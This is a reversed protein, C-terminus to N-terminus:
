CLFRTLRSTVSDNLWVKCSNKRLVTWRHLYGDPGTMTGVYKAHRGIQMERFEECNELIWTRLSDHEENGCQVWCCIRYNLNLGAVSDVSRFAWALATM